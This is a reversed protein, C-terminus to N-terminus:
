KLDKDGHACKADKKDKCCKADKKDCTKACKADKAHDCGAKAPTAATSTSAATSTKEVKTEKVPKQEQAYGNSIAIFCVFSILSLILAFKKM